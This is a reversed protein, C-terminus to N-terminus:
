LPQGDNKLASHQLLPVVAPVLALICMEVPVLPAPVLPHVLACQGQKHRGLDIPPDLSRPLIDRKSHQHVVLLMPANNHLETLNDSRLLVQDLLVSRPLAQLPLVSCLLAHDLPVNFRHQVVASYPLAPPLVNYLQARRAAVSFPQHSQILEV